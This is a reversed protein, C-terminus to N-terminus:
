IFANQIPSHPPFAAQDMRLPAYTGRIHMRGCAHLACFYSPRDLESRGVNQRSPLAPQPRLSLFFSFPRFKSALDFSHLRRGNSRQCFSIFTSKWGDLHAGSGRAKEVSRRTVGWTNQLEADDWLSQHKRHLLYVEAQYMISFNGWSIHFIACSTNGYALTHTHCM